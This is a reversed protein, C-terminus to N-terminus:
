SASLPSAKRSRGILRKGMGIMPQEILTFTVWSAACTLAVTLAFGVAYAAIAAFGVAHTHLFVPWAEVVNIVAFHILYASFSVKGVAAIAQNVFLRSGRALAIVFIIIPVCAAQGAPVPPNAGLYRGLPLFALACFAAIGLAAMATGHRTRANGADPGVQRVLFFYLVAGLAFVSAENPFWFFLFNNIAAPGYVGALTRAAILNAVVALGICGLLLWLARRLNTVTMALVPFLVYFCFEVSVSWGGPVVSWAGPVTPMWAPRLANTFTAARVAQWADFGGLPPFFLFYLLGALYYAPAIRFFRRLFFASVDVSGNKRAESHWSM